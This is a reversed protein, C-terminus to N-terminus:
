SLVKQLLEAAQRIPKEASHVYLRSTIASTSHGLVRSITEVDVGQSYMLTAASHRADHLRRPTIGCLKLADQWQDYDTKPSRPTGDAAPFVLDWEQWEAGKALKMKEVIQKQAAIALVTEQTLVILRRSRETKLTTFTPKRDVYQIQTQVSITSEQLNVDTWRLGLAEGQRLGCIMAVHLRACLYTGEFTRVLRRIEDLNLPEFSKSKGQPNKVKRVPNFAIEDLNEAEALCISLLARAQQQSRVGQGSERMKSLFGSIHRPSLETLQLHGIAPNIHHVALSRYRLYTTHAIQHRHETELWHMLYEGLAKESREPDKASTLVEGSAKAKALRKSEQETKAMATIVKGNCRIVTRYSTGAKYTYGQGNTKRKKASMSM